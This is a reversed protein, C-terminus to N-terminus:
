VHAKAMRAQQIKAIDIASQLTLSGQPAILFIEGIFVGSRWVVYFYTRSAQTTTHLFSEDGLGKGSTWNGSSLETTLSQVVSRSDDASAAVSAATTLARHLQVNQLGVSLSYLVSLCTGCLPNSDTKAAVYGTRLDSPKILVTRLDLQVVSPSPSSPPSPQQATPSQVPLIQVASPKAFLFSGVIPGAAVMAVVFIVATAGYAFLL